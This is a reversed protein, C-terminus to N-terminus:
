KSGCDPFVADLCVLCVSASLVAAPPLAVCATQYLCLPDMMDTIGQAESDRETKTHTIVTLYVRLEDSDETSVM